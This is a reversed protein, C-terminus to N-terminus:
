HVHANVVDLIQTRTQPEFYDAVARKYATELPYFRSKRIVQINPRVGWSIPLSGVEILNRLEASIAMVTDLIKKSPAKAADDYFRRVLIEREIDEPPLNMEIMTLRSILSEDLEMTGHYKPDWAPNIALILFSWPDRVVPPPTVYITSGDELVQPIAASEIVFQQSGDTMPLLLEQIVTDARNPEDLLGVGTGRWRIPLRGDKWVTEQNKFLWTGVLDDVESSKNFNIRDFPAAMLWGLHRALETKGVGADSILLPTEDLEMWEVAVQYALGQHDIYGEPREKDGAQPVKALEVMSFRSPDFIPLFVPEGFGNPDHVKRWARIGFKEDEPTVDQDTPYDQPDVIESAWDGIGLDYGFDEAYVPLLTVDDIYAQEPTGYVGTTCARAETTLAKPSLLRGKATCLGAPWGFARYTQFEDLFYKCNVCTSPADPFHGNIDTDASHRTMSDQLALPSPNGVRATLVDAASAGALPAPAGYDSCTKAFAEGIRKRTAEDTTPKGFVHGHRLCAPAGVDKGFRVAVDSAPICSPCATCSNAM